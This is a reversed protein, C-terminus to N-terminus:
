PMIWGLRIIKRVLQATNRVRLKAYIRGRNFEVTKKSGGLIDAIEKDKKGDAILYVIRMLRESLVAQPAKCPCYEECSNPDDPSPPVLNRLFVLFDMERRIPLMRNRAETAMSIM